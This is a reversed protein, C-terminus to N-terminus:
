ANITDIINDNNDDNNTNNNNDDKVALAAVGNKHTLMIWIFLYSYM